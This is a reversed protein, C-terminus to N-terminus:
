SFLFVLLTFDFPMRQQSM